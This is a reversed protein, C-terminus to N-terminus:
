RCGGICCGALCASPVDLNLGCRRCFFMGVDRTVPRYLAVDHMGRDPFFLMRYGRRREAGVPLRYRLVVRELGVVGTRYVVM